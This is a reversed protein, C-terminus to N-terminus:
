LFGGFDIEPRNHTSIKQHSILAKKDLAPWIREADFSGIHNEKAAFAYVMCDLPENRDVKNHVYITKGGPKSSRYESCLGAAVFPDLDTPFKIESEPNGGVYDKLMSMIRDKVLATQIQFLPQKTSPAYSRVIMAKGQTVNGKIAYMKYKKCQRYVRMTTNGDGSDVFTIAPRISKKKDFTTYTSTITTALINWVEEEMINGDIAMHTLFYCHHRSFGLMTYELRPTKGMGQVDVGVTILSIDNPIGETGYITEYNSNPTQELIDEAKLQGFDTPSSPLGLRTNIFVRLKEKDYGADERQRALNPWSCNPSDAYLSSIHFGARGPVGDTSTTKWYGHKVLNPKEYERMLYGCNDNICRFGSDNYDSQGIVFQQIALYQPKGCKPCKIMYRRKDSNDYLDWTNSDNFSGRPTGGVIIIADHFEQTRNKILEYASGEGRVDKVLDYEDILVYGFSHTAVDAPKNAALFRLTGNPFHKRVASSKGDSSIESSILGQLSPQSDFYKAAQNSAFAITADNNPFYIGINTPRHIVTYAIAHLLSITYGCQASKCLIVEKISAGSAKMRSGISMAKLIEIQYPRCRFKGSHSDSPPLYAEKNAWDAANKIRPPKLSNLVIPSVDNAM